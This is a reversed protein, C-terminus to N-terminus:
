ESFYGERARVKYDKLGGLTVRIGHWKGTPASPPRFALLYTHRMDSSIDHFIKEVDRATHAKYSLAGTMDAMRALERILATSSLAEGQAVTYLPIGLKKARTVATNASLVSSNDNGDTFVIIAKRGSRGSVDRAVESIADFLATAGGARIRLVARKVEAKDHTFDQLTVLSTNFGYAAIWDDDRFEDVLKVVANKLVPLSRTMSGTVDLVIACSLVSADSEFATITRADGNDTLHFRERALGDIYRDKHDFITAYVEVLRAETRFVFPSDQAAAAIAILLLRCVKM